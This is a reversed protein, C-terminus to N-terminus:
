SRLSFLVALCAYRLALARAIGDHISDEARPEETRRASAGLENGLLELEEIAQEHFRTLTLELEERPVTLAYMGRHDPGDADLDELLRLDSVLRLRLREALTGSPELDTIAELAHVEQRLARLLVERHEPRVAVRTRCNLLKSARYDLLSRTGTIPV